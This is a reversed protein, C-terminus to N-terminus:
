SELGAAKAMFTAYWAPWNEDYKGDLEDAEHRGHALAADRLAQELEAASGYVVHSIRGLRRQTVEQLFFLNGDPDAFSLFSSYSQRAPHPGDVRDTTGAHHFVGGADHFIESPEAGKAVLEARAAVIDDVVIHVGKSSGPAADTIGKGVIISAASGPPTFHVVRFDNPGQYDVDERWGLGNYFAKARDVDSVPLVVIEVKFDVM